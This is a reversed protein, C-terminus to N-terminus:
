RYGCVNDRFYLHFQIETGGGENIAWDRDSTSDYKFFRNRAPARGLKALDKRQYAFEECFEGLAENVRSVLQGINKIKM